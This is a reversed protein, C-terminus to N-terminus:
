SSQVAVFLRIEVRALKHSYVFDIQSDEAKYGMCGLVYEGLSTAVQFGL